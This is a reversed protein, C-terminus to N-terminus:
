GFRRGDVVTKGKVIPCFQAWSNGADDQTIWGFGHQWDRMQSRHAYDVAGFDGLWGVNLAFHREGDVTGGYVAGARHSHGFVINGGFSALSQAAAHKGYHGIEHAFAVKGLKFWQKYPVWKWGRERIRLLDQITVMGYLEPARQCLYRELREEHNGCAFWTSGALGDLENLCENAQEIEWKLEQRREPSKAFQSVSYCDVFDGIIVLVDPKLERAAHVALRYAEADHYPVHVDPLVFIRRGDGAPTTATTENAPKGSVHLRMCGSTGENRLQGEILLRKVDASVYQERGPVAGAVKRLACGPNEAVFALIRSAYDTM